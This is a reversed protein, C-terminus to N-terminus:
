CLMFDLIQIGSRNLLEITSIFCLNLHQIVKAESLVARFDFFVLKVASTEVNPMCPSMNCSSMYIPFDQIRANVNENFITEYLRKKMIEIRSEGNILSCDCIVNETYNFHM